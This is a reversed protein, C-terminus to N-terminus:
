YSHNGGNETRGVRISDCEEFRIGDYAEWRICAEADRAAIGTEFLRYTSVLDVYGDHNVDRFNDEGVIDEPCIELSSKPFSGKRPVPAARAPGFSLTSIDINGVDFGASGLIAVPIPYDRPTPGALSPLVTSLDLEVVDTFEPDPSDESHFLGQAKTYTEVLKVM